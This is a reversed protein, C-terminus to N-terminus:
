LMERATKGQQQKPGISKDCRIRLRSPIIKAVLRRNQKTRYTASSIKPIMRLCSWNGSSSLGWKSTNTRNCSSLPAIRSDRAVVGLSCWFESSWNMARRRRVWSHSVSVISRERRGVEGRGSLAIFSRYRESCKICFPELSCWEWSSSSFSSSSSSSSSSFFPILRDGSGPSSICAYMYM